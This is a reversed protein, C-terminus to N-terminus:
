STNTRLATKMYGQMFEDYGEQNEHPIYIDHKLGISGETYLYSIPDITGYECLGFDIIWLKGNSWVWELDNPIIGNDLLLRLGKGMLNAITQITMQSNELRWIERMTDPSAFFGRTPNTLSVPESMKMGWSEDIDDQTYGLLIHVQEEFDLPPKLLKMGLGCLYLDNKYKIKRTSFYTVKPIKIEPLYNKFLFYAKEQIEAEKKLVKCNETDMFIKLVENQKTKLIKGYGGAGIITYSDYNFIREIQGLKGGRKRTKM